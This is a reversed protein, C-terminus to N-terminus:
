VTRLVYFAAVRNAKFAFEEPVIHNAQTSWAIRAINVGCPQLEDIPQSCALVQPGFGHAFAFRKWIALGVGRYPRSPFKWDPQPQYQRGELISM